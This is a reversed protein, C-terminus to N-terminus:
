ADDIVGVSADRRGREADIAVFVQANSKAGIIASGASPSSM